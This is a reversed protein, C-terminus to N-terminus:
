ENEKRRQTTVPIRFSIQGEQKPFQTSKAVKIICKGLSTQGLNQPTLEAKNVKGSKGVEFLISLKPESEHDEVHREFCSRVKRKQKKFARTIAGVGTSSSKRARRKAGSAAQKSDNKGAVPEPAKEDNSVPPAADKKEDATKEAAPSLATEDLKKAAEVPSQVVLFKQGETKNDRSMLFAAAFVSVLVVAVAVAVLIYPNRSPGRDSTKTTSSPVSPPSVSTSKGASSDKSEEKSKAIMENAKKMVKQEYERRKQHRKEFEKNFWNRVEDTSAIEPLERIAAAFEDATQYRKERDKSVAKAIIADIQPPLGKVLTTPPRVKKTNITTIVEGVNVNEKFLFPNIGTILQYFVLGLAYIDVRRDVESDEFSEPAAFSLKGKFVSPGTTEVQNAAKAVGFDIVKLYGNGDIMLNTLDIDRHIINLPKGERSVATHAYNLAVCADIMLRSVIAFPFKAKKKTLRKLVFALSEGDIYEMTISISNKVKSLDYIKVIHPHNLSANIRAENLFMGISQGRQHGMVRIKKIVVLRKFANEEAVQIGLYIDAMGGSKLKTVIRYREGTAQSNKM